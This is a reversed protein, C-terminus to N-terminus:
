GIDQIGSGGDWMGHGTDRCGRGWMCIRCGKVKMGFRREEIQADQVWVEQIRYKVEQM